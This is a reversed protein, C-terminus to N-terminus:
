QVVQSEAIPHLCREDKNRANNVHTSVPIIELSEALRPVFMRQMSVAPSGPDLWEDIQTRTLQVPMRNHIHSIASHAQTTIIACSEIVQEGRQWRDWIGAFAFGNGVEPKIYFPVKGAATTQWEYYGSAPIVCRSTKFPKSFAKSTLLNESRANFMSYKTSPEDVWGPLLWWRMERINRVGDAQQLVVPIQETPAINYRDKLDYSMGTIDLLLRTLPDSIINFRGCM